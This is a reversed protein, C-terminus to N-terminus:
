PKTLSIILANGAANPYVYCDEGDANNMIWGTIPGSSFSKLEIGYKFKIHFSESPATTGIGIRRTSHEYFVNSACNQDRTGSITITTSGEEYSLATVYFSAEVGAPPGAYVVKVVDAVSVSSTIDGTFVMTNSTQGTQTFSGIETEIVDSGLVNNLLVVGNFTTIGNFTSNKQVKLNRVRKDVQSFSFTSILLLASLLLIFKKM